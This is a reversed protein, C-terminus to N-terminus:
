LLTTQLTSRAVQTASGRGLGATQNGSPSSSASARLSSPMQVTPHTSASRARNNAAAKDGAELSSGLSHGGQSAAGSEAAAANQSTVIRGLGYGAMAAEFAHSLNLSVAGGVVSAATNPITWALLMFILAGGAITLPLTPDAVTWGTLAANWGAIITMGV